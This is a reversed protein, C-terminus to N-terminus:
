HKQESIALWKNVLVNWQEENEETRPENDDEIFCDEKNHEITNLEQINKSTSIKLLVQEAMTKRSPLIIGPCVFEFVARTDENELYTFALGNSLIMRLLLQEFQAKDKCSMSRAYFSTISQQYKISLNPQISSHASISNKQRKSSSSKDIIEEEYESST